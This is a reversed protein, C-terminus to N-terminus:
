GRWRITLRNENDDGSAVLDWHDGLELKNVIHGNVVFFKYIPNGDEDLDNPDGGVYAKEDGDAYFGLKTTTLVAKTQSDSEGLELGEESYRIYHSQEVAHGELDEAVKTITATIEDATQAIMSQTYGELRTVESAILNSNVEIKASNTVTNREVREQRRETTTDYPFDDEEPIGPSSINTFMGRSFFTDINGIMATKGNCTAIDGLEYAPDLETGTAVFPEYTVDAYQALLSDCIDQIAEGDTLTEVTYEITRGDDEDGAIKSLLVGDEDYGYNIIVCGVPDLPDTNEFGQVDRGLNVTYDEDDVKRLRLRPSVTPNADTGGVIYTLMWNGGCALAIDNLVERATYGFPPASFPITDSVQNGDELRIGMYDSMKNAVSRLTEDSWSSIKAGEAYPITNGKFMLDYGSINLMGSEPNYDPKKTYYIGKPLWNTYNGNGDTLRCWIEVRSFKPIDTPLVGYFTAEFSGVISNGINYYEGFLSLHTTLSALTTENYTVKDDGSGVILKFEAYHLPNAYITNYNQSKTLM